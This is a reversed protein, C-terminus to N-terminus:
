TRAMLAPGFCPIGQSELFRAIKPFQDNPISQLMDDAAEMDGRLVLTQYEVLSLSLAYSIVNVNKDALYVRGNRPIYGLLYYGPSIHTITYTQEGVVYQLRM